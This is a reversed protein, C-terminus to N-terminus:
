KKLIEIVRARFFGHPIKKIFDTARQNMEM